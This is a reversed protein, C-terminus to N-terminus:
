AWVQEGRCALILPTQGWHDQQNVFSWIQESDEAVTILVDLLYQLVDEQGAAAAQHLLTRKDSSSVTLVQL